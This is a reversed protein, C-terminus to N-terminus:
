SKTEDYRRLESLNNRTIKSTSSLIKGWFEQATVGSDFAKEPEEDLIAYQFQSIGGVYKGLRKVEYLWETYPLIDEKRWQENTQAILLFPQNGPRICAEITIIKDPLELLLYGSNGYEYKVEPKLFDELKVEKM